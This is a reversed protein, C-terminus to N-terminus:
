NRWARLMSLQGERLWHSRCKFGALTLIETCSKLANPVRDDHVEIVFERVRRLTAEAAGQLVEVEAGEVDMKCFDIHDRGFLEICDALSRTPVTQQVGDKQDPLLVGSLSSIVSTRSELFTATGTERAVAENRVTVHELNNQIVNHKLRALTATGPEFALVSARPFKTVAWVCFFGINSGLDLISRIDHNAKPLYSEDDFIELLLFVPADDANHHLQLGNHFALPPIKVQAFYADRVERWNRLHRHLRRGIHWRQLM